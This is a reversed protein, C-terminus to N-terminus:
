ALSATIVIEAEPIKWEKNPDKTSFIIEAVADAPLDISVATSGDELEVVNPITQMDSISVNVVVSSPSVSKITLTLMGARTAEFTYITGQDNGAACHITNDGLKLEGPNERTGEAFYFVVDFTKAATGSNGIELELPMFSGDSAMPIYIMGGAPTYTTGKYVVYADKDAICLTAENITRIMYILKKEGAGVEVSFDTFGYHEEPADPNVLTGDTNPKTPGPDDNDEPPTVEKLKLEAAFTVTAAPYNGNGDVNSSVLIQIVNGKTVPIMLVTKGSEEVADEELTNQVTTTLNYLAVNYGSNKKLGSLTLTGSQQATYTMYVGQANGEAVEVTVQGPKLMLPNEMTGKPYSFTIKYTEEQTGTNSFRLAFPTSPETTFPLQLAVVGDVSEAVTNGYTVKLTQSTAKLEMGSIRYINCYYDAGPKVSIEIETVGVFEHPNDQSGLEATTTAPIDTINAVASQVYDDATFYAFANEFTRASDIGGIHILGVAGYRDIIITAPYALNAVTGKWSEEGRATPFRLGYEAVFEAIADESDGEPNIALVEIDDRFNTYATNLYPFEAKCPNCNVYWLNLVVAKKTKLLESLTHPTGNTDTVTFDFMVDGLEIKGMQQRLQTQLAIKTETTTIAYGGQTVYGEPVKDPVAVSGVPVPHSIAAIGQADTKVYDLMDTMAADKYIYMGVGELVKGGVSKVEITCGTLENPTDPTTEACGSLIGLLVIVALLAASCKLKKIM